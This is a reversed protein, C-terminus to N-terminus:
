SNKGRQDNWGLTWIDVSPGTASTSIKVAVRASADVRVRFEGGVNGSATPNILSAGSTSVALDSETLPSQFACIMNALTATWQARFRAEIGASRPVPLTYLTRASTSPAANNIDHSPNTWYFDDGIQTFLAVNGSSNIFIWGVRRSLSYGTPMAPATGNLSALGTVTQTGDNNWKAIAYIAYWTSVAKTGTDLGGAGSLALDCSIPAFGNILAGGAYCVGQGINVKTLTTGDPSMIFGDIMGREFTAQSVGQNTPLAVGKTDDFMLFPIWMTDAANRRKVVAPSTSTDCWVVGALSTLGLSAATPETASMLWNALAAIAPNIDGVIEAGGHTGTTPAQLLGSM